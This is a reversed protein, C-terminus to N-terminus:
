RSKTAPGLESGRPAIRAAVLEGILKKHVKNSDTMPVEEREIVVIVRPAKYSSLRSRLDSRIADPDLQAGPEPVIAAAVLQGRKDDPLAIVYASDVGAIEQLEMEVEAPAVNAGSTKIMDGKRGVFHIRPGDVQGLDGTPYFGDPDFADARAVKHLGVTLTPGRVLIEGIEGDTVPEGQENVVKVSFDPSFGDLPPCLPYGDVRLENGMSYPGLTETMGLGWIVQRRPMAELADKPLVTGFASRSDGSTSETCVSVAGCELGPLLYMMLGGVWFPPSRVDQRSGPEFPTVEALYHTKTMLAGHSHTVGKPLATIGSTYIEIAPDEPHVEAEVHELFADDFAAGVDELAELNTTWPLVTM